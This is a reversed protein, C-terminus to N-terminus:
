VGHHDDTERRLERLPLGLKKDFGYQDVPQLGGFDPDPGVEQETTTARPCERQQACQALIAAKADLLDIRDEVLVEDDRTRADPVQQRLPADVFGARQEPMVVEDVP